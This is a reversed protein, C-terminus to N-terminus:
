RSRSRCLNSRGHREDGAEQRRRALVPQQGLLYECVEGEYTASSLPGSSAAIAFLSVNQNWRCNARTWNRVGHYGIPLVASAEDRKLMGPLHAKKV